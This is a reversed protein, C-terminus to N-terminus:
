LSFIVLRSKILTGIANPVDQPAREVSYKLNPRDFADRLIALDEDLSLMEIVDAALTRSATATLGLVPVGPFQKKLIGLYNYDPRFDHGWQSCCHVQFSCNKKLM